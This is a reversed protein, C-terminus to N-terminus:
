PCSDQVQQPLWLVVAQEALPEEVRLPKHSHVHLPLVLLLLVLLPM